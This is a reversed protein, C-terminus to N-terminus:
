ALAIGIEATSGLLTPTLRLLIGRITRLYGSFAYHPHLFNM